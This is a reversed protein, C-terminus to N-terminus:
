HAHSEGHPAINASTDRNQHVPPLHEPTGRGNSAPDSRRSSPGHHPRWTPIRPTVPELTRNRGRGFLEQGAATTGTCITEGPLALIGRQKLIVRTPQAARTVARAQASTSEQIGQTAASVAAASGIENRLATSRASCCLPTIPM